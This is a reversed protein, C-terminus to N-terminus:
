MKLGRSSFRSWLLKFIVSSDPLHRGTYRIEIYLNDTIKMELFFPAKIKRM